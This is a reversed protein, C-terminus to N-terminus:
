LGTKEKVMDLLQFKRDIGRTYNAHHIVIDDPVEFPEEGNWERGDLSM